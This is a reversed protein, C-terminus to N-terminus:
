ANKIEEHIFNITVNGEDDQSFDALLVTDKARSPPVSERAGAPIVSVYYRDASLTEPVLYIKVRRSTEPAPIDCVLNTAGRIGPLEIHNGLQM